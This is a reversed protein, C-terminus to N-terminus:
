SLSPYVHLGKTASKRIALTGPLFLLLSFIAYDAGVFNYLLLYLLLITSIVALIRWTSKYSMRWTSKLLHKHKETYVWPFPVLKLALVAPILQFVMAYKWYVSALSISFVLFLLLFLLLSFLLVFGVLDILVGLVPKKNKSSLYATIYIFTMMFPTQLFEWNQIRSGFYALVFVLTFPLFNKYSFNWYEKVADNM